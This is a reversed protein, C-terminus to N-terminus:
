LSRRCACCLVGHSPVWCIAKVRCTTTSGQVQKILRERVDATKRVAVMCIFFAALLTLSVGACINLGHVRLLIDRLLVQQRLIAMAARHTQIVQFRAPAEIEREIIFKWVKKSEHKVQAMM